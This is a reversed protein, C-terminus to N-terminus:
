KFGKNKMWQEFNSYDIIPKEGDANKINEKKKRPTWGDILPIIDSRCTVHTEEPIKPHEGFKYIRGDHERCFKSTKKDLTADFLVKEVVGSQEYVQDQAQRSVRALENNILRQSEYTSVGFIRKIERALKRPDTGDLMAKEVAFRVHKVLKQKNKWIRDSFMEEKIPTNVIAKLENEKLPKLKIAEDLGSELLFGTRYYSEEAAQNLIYTTIEVDKGRLLKAEKLITKNIKKMIKKRKNLPVDLKGDVMYDSLTSLIDGQVINLSSKFAKLLGAMDGKILSEIVTRILQLYKSLPM